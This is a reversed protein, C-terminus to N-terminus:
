GIVAVRVSDTHGPGAEPSGALVVVIDGPKVLARAQAMAIADRMVGETSSSAEPLFVAQVGWCVSLQRLARPDATLGYLPSLPRLSAMKRATSGTRTCCLIAAARLDHAAQWGAHATALNVDSFDRGEFAFRHLQAPDLEEEARGLLRVMTRVVAVPDHGVATEASLMVASTNDLVANAVDTAEARTPTPSEVMSELMQTAVVVPKGHRVTERVIRKQLHPVEEIPLETGLDGRAVMVADSSNIIETLNEVAAATEIKAMLWPPNAGVATRVAAMDAASRVFSVALIDVASGRLADILVLDHATPVSARYRGAPIRVGKRGSLLGGHTVTASLSVSTKSDVRLRVAGDGIVVVDGVQLDEVLSPYDIAFRSATSPQDDGGVLTVVDDRGLHVDAAFSSTRVKPGPLDALIGIPLGAADAEKRIAAILALQSQITGHALTVRAVNLGAEFLERLVAPSSSAPGITAVIKTRRM